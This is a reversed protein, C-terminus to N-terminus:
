RVPTLTVRRLNMLAHKLEGRARVVVTGAGEAPLRVVGAAHAVFREWGGTAPVVGEVRAAGLEVVYGSGASGDTSALELEVLYAGAGLAVPWSASGDRDTWAGINPIDDAKREVRIGRGTLDAAAAHLVLEGGPGPTIPPEEVDAPGDLDLRIVGAAEDPPDIPLVLMPWRIPGRPALTEVEPGGLVRAGLVRSRLGVVELRGDRPWDTVLLYLTSGKVTAHGWTARRFPGASTAHIAEGHVALWRGIARLREVSPAPIEGEGTPGVNLLFNGGKGAVEALQRILAAAPKWNPDDDRYGWTDNMTMCTEWDTGPPPRAPIEQEPTHYDGAGRYSSFGAMGDRAKSVRNNVIVRPSISRCFAYLDQGREETWEETWEGDFWVVAPADDGTLLERLQAKMYAVYMPMRDLGGDDRRFDPHRWDWISYYVGFRVGEERCAEGLERVIDRGFPTADIVDYRTAASDFLCFGDHHKATIVLYKMGADRALRAWARADFRRPNFRSALAAYDDAPIRANRQIWEGTGPAPTGGWEGAPIAYLGWHIFMGFRAERWWGMREDRDADPPPGQCALSAGALILSAMAVAFRAM